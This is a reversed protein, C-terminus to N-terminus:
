TDPAAEPAHLNTKRVEIKKQTVLTKRAQEGGRGAASREAHLELESRPEFKM